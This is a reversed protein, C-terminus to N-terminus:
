GQLIYNKLKKEVLDIEEIEKKYQEKLEPIELFIQIYERRSRLADMLIRIDAANFVIEENKMSNIDTLM